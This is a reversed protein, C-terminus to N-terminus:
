LHKAITSLFPLHLHKAVPSSSVLAFWCNRGLELRPRYDRGGDSADRALNPSHPRFQLAYAWILFQFLVRHFADRGLLTVNCGSAHLGIYFIIGLSRRSFVSSAPKAM